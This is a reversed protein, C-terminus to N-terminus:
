SIGLTIFISSLITIGYGVNRSLRDTGDELNLCDLNSATYFGLVAYSENVDRRFGSM